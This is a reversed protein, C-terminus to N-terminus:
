DLIPKSLREVCKGRNHGPKKCYSCFGKTPKSKGVEPLVLKEIEPVDDEVKILYRPLLIFNPNIPHKCNLCETNAIQQIFEEEHIETASNEIAPNPIEESIWKAPKPVEDPGKGPKPVEELGKRKPIGKAPKPIEATARGATVEGTLQIQEIYKNVVRLRGEYERKLQDLEKTKEVIAKALNDVSKLLEIIAMILSSYEDRGEYLHGM